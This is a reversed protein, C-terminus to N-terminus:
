NTIFGAEKPDPIPVGTEACIKELYEGFELKDLETTSKPVKIEKGMVKIFKPPLKTRKFYEHLDNADNGTEKEILQLYVWYFRNQTLSRKTEVKELRYKAGENIRVHEKLRAVNAESGFDLKGNKATARFVTM